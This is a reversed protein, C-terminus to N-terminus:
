EPRHQFRRHLFRDLLALAGLVVILSMVINTAGKAPLYHQLWVSANRLGEMLWDGTASFYTSAVTQGESVQGSDIVGTAIFVALIIGTVILVAFIYALHEVLRFAIPLRGGPIIGAMVKGTLESGASEMPLRRLGGDLKRLSEFRATCAGCGRLHALIEQRDSDAVREDLLMQLQESTCHGPGEKM